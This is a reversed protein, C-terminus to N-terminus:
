IHFDGPPQVSCLAGRAQARARLAFRWRDLICFTIILEHSCPPRTCCRKHELQEVARLSRSPWPQQSPTM